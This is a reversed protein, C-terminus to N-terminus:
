MRVRADRRDLGRRRSLRWADDRDDGPRLEGLHDRGPDADEGVELADLRRRLMRDRHLAGAPLALRHARHHRAATGLGFIAARPPAPASPPPPPTSPACPPRRPTGAASGASSGAVGTIWGARPSLRVKSRTCLAPSGSLANASASETTSAVKTNPRWVPTVLSGRAITASQFAPSCRRVTYWPVCAGCMICFRNALCRPRSSCWTRTSVLSTPPENPM